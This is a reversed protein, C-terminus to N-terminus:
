LFLTLYGQINNVDPLVVILNIRFRQAKVYNEHPFTVHFAINCLM